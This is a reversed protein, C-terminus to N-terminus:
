CVVNLFVMKHAPTYTCEPSHAHTNTAYTGYLRHNWYQAKFVDFEPVDMDEAEWTAQDYPLDRWKILYHVNNKRDISPCLYLSISSLDTWFQFSFLNKFADLKIPRM